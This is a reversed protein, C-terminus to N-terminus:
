EFLTEVAGHAFHHGLLLEDGGLRADGELLRLLDQVAVPDLLEGHDALPILEAAQDGDLVDFFRDAVRVGGLVLEPPEADPRGDAGAGVALRAGLRQHAGARVYQDDVRRVAGAEIQVVRTTEPTPTGCSVAIRSATPGASRAPTGTMASPPMLNEPSTVLASAAPACVTIIPPRTAPVSSLGPSVM